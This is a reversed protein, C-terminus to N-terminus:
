GRRRGVRLSVSSAIFIALVFALQIAAILRRDPNAVVETLGHAAWGLAAFGTLAVATRHRALVGPILFVPPLVALGALSWGLGGNPLPHLTWIAYVAALGALLLGTIRHPTM